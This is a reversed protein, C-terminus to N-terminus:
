RGLYKSLEEVAGRSLPASKRTTADIQVIVTEAAAVCRGEQFLGQRIDISSNGIRTLMTGIRVIGPWTIEGLFDLKIGAIVFCRNEGCLDKRPDYLIEARGTELFSSFVANNVHGQ